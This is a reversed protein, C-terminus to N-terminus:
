PASNRRMNVSRGYTSTAPGYREAVYVKCQMKTPGDRSYDPECRDDTPNPSIGTGSSDNSPVRRRPAGKTQYEEERQQRQAYTWIVQPDLGGLWCYAQGDTSLLYQIGEEQIGSRIIAGLLAIYDLHTSGYREFNGAGFPVSPETVTTM